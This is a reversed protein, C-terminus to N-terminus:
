PKGNITTLYRALDDIAEPPLPAGYVARMKVVEAKWEDFSLPPQRTVMGVSHCVLCHQNALDAGPGPPFKRTDGPLEVEVTRTEITRAAAARAPGTAEAMAVSAACTAAALLIAACTKTM